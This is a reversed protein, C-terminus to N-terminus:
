RQCLLTTNPPNWVCGHTDWIGLERCRGGWHVPRMSTLSNITEAYQNYTKGAEYLAVKWVQLFVANIEEVYTGPHDLLHSIDLSETAAWDLFARGSSRALLDPLLCFLVDRPWHNQFDESRQRGVKQLHWLSFRYPWPSPDSVSVPVPLGVCCSSRCWCASCRFGLPWLLCLCVLCLPVSISCILTLFIWLLCPTLPGEGPSGLPLISFRPRLFGITLLRGGSFTVALFTCATVGQSGSSLALGILLGADSSQCRVCTLSHTGTWRFFIWVQSRAVFHPIGPQTM